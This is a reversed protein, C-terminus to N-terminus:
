RRSRLIRNWSELITSCQAIDLPTFRLAINSTQNRSGSRDVVAFLSAREAFQEGIRRQDDKLEFRV